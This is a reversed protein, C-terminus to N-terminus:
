VLPREAPHEAHDDPRGQEVHLEARAVQVRARRRRPDHDRAARVHRRARLEVVPPGPRLPQLQPRVGSRGLRDRRPLPSRHRSRSISRGDRGDSRGLERRPHRRARGGRRFEGTGAGSLASSPANGMGKKRSATLSRLTWPPTSQFKGPLPVSMRKRFTLTTSLWIERKVESRDLAYATDRHPVTVPVPIASVASGLALVPRRRDAVDGVGGADRDRGDGPDQVAPRVDRGLVRSDTSRTTRSCPNLMFRLARASEPPRVPSIPTVRGM